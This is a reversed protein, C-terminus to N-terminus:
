DTGALLAGEITSRLRARGMTRLKLLELAVCEVAHWVPPLDLTNRTKISLWSLIAEDEGPGCSLLSAWSLAYDHDYSAGVEDPKGTHVEEAIPGALLVMIRAEIRRRDRPRVLVDLDAFNGDSQRSHGLSGDGPVISASVLGTRLLYSMVAHGAEHIATSRLSDPGSEHTKTPM